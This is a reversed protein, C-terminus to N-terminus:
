AVTVTDQLSVALERELLGHNLDTIYVTKLDDRVLMRGLYAALEEAEGRTLEINVDSLVKGTEYDLIKM